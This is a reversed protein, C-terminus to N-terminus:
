APKSGAPISAAKAEKKSAAGHGNEIMHEFHPYASIGHKSMDLGAFEDEAKARLGITAHLAGLIIGSVVITWGAVALVGVCQAMFLETGGGTLLGGETAFLGLALTGVVGAAGHVPFAGVVDDIKNTELLVTALYVTAGGLAGMLMAFGPTVSACGATIAVLGGLLGNLTLGASTKGSALYSIFLAVITGMMAALTTNVLILGVVSASEGDIALQSGANFGFWGIFLILTGLTALPISHGDFDRKNKPDFRGIRPGIIIAAVLAIWGGVSHVVTSGAFDSFGLESLWGGGWVWHGVVPYILATILVSVIIYAFFKTREAIAGAVITAATAAFAAQFFFFAYTSVGNSVEPLGILAFGEWGFLGNGSGFMIAYGVLFFALVGFSLDMMNKMLINIANKARTFGSELMGFGAQMFFVLIGAIVVWLTNLGLTLDAEM